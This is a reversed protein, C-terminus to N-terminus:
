FSMSPPRICHDSLTLLAYTGPAGYRGTGAFSGPNVFLINGIRSQMPRHTHGFVICDATPFLNLLHDEIDHHMGAGHCLGINFRGARITRLRPLVSQTRANCMNGRVAYVQFDAFADLITIDILDGAHIIAQCGAFAHHVQRLFLESCHDLHTDSLVGIRQM